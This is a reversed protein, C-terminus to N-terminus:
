LFVIDTLLVATTSTTKKSLTQFKFPQINPINQYKPPLGSWYIMSKTSGSNLLAKLLKTSLQIDITKRKVITFSIM